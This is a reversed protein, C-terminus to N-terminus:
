AHAGRRGRSLAVAVGGLVLLVLGVLVPLLPESGTQALSGTPGAAVPADTSTSGSGSGATTTPTSTSGGGSTATPSASGTPTATPSAPACAYAPAEADAGTATVTGLPTGSLALLAQATSRRDQDGPVAESGAEEQADYAAQDYAVGGRLAAPFGCGYQLDTLYGVAARAQATRGGALFAQGALGTSNANVGSTPGGGGVAGSADQRSALYDLGANAASAHGGVALLAQVAMSTADPDADAVDTCGEDSEYLKFAGNACQQDLLYQVSQATVPEGARSLGILAFSQGFTNASQTYKTIDTFRGNDQELGQLTAVLDVGGFATPDVQQAVAVNLLKAVSGAGVETPDGFGTYDVFHEALTQTALAAEDQGTGAADLALVADATVGYDPYNVGDFEVSLVHGGARLQEELYNAGVLVPDTSTAPGQAAAVGYRRADGGPVVGTAAEDTPSASPTPSAPPTTASPGPEATATASPSPAVTESPSPAPSADPTATASPSGTPTASTSPSPSADDAHAAVPAGVLAASLLLAGLARAGPRLTTPSM